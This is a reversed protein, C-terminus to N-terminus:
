RSYGFGKLWWKHTGNDDNDAAASRVNRSSGLIIWKTVYVTTGSVASEQFSISPTANEQSQEYSTIYVNAVSGSDQSRAHILAKTANDPVITSSETTGAQWTFDPNLGTSELAIVNELIVDIQTGSEAVIDYYYITSASDCYVSAICRDDGNMWANGYTANQTPATTSWIIDGAVLVEGDAIASYDIYGYTCAGSSFASVTDTIDTTIYWRKDKCMGYGDSITVTTTSAYRVIAGKIMRYDVDETLDSISSAGAISDVYTKVAKETPIATDSNGTLTGDTSFENVAQGANLTLSCSMDFTDEDEMWKIIGDNDQGDFTLTYDIGAAGNGITIDDGSPAITLDGNTDVNFTTNDTGDYSIKFQNSTSLIEVRHDPDSLGFGMYGALFYGQVGIGNAYSRILANVTTTDDFLQIFGGNGNSHGFNVRNNNSDGSDQCKFAWGSGRLLIEGSGNEQINLITDSGNYYMKSDQGEGLVLGYSDSDIKVDLQTVLQQVGNVNNTDTISVGSTQMTRGDTGNFRPITNDVSTGTALMYAPHDDDSLGTIDAGHDITGNSQSTLAVTGSANPITVTRDATPDTVTLTTDYDDASSGEFVIIEDIYLSDSELPMQVDFFGIATDQRTLELNDTDDNIQFKVWRSASEATIWGAYLFSDNHGAQWNRGFQCQGGTPYFLMNASSSFRLDSGTSTVSAVQNANVSLSVSADGEAAKRNVILEKGGAANDVDADGFLSVNYGADPMINLVEASNYLTTANIIGFTVNASVSVDQDFLLDLNGFTVTRDATPDTVTLTTEYDDKTAGEFNITQNQPVYIDSYIFSSILFIALFKIM